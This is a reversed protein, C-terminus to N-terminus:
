LDFGKADIMEMDLFSPCLIYDKKDLYEPKWEEQSCIKNEEKDLVIGIDACVLRGINKAAEDTVLGNKVFGITVTIDSRVCMTSCGTDGNMGSNIDVSVVFAKATNIETIAEAYNQRVEGQFGTGLMCDVIIDSDEFCGKRYPKAFVGLAEAKEAFFAGDESRKESLAIIECDIGKSKLIYALAYGDGGNNGSGVAITIKGGWHVALFVGMAARYMLTKSPVYKEITLRDSERMNSVSISNLM